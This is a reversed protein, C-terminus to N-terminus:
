GSFVILRVSALAWLSGAVVLALYFFADAKCGSGASVLQRGTSQTYISPVLVQFSTSNRLTLVACEVVAM